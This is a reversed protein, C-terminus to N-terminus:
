LWWLMPLYKTVFWRTMQAVANWRHQKQLTIVDVTQWLWAASCPLTLYPLRPNTFMTFVGRLCEPIACTRLAFIYISLYICKNIFRRYTSPIVLRKLRWLSTNEFITLLFRLFTGAAATRTFSTPTFPSQVTTYSSSQWEAEPEHVIEHKHIALM